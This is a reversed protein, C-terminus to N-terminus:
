EIVSVKLLDTALQIPLSKFCGDFRFLFLSQALKSHFDLRPNNGRLRANVRPAPANGGHHPCTAVGEKKGTPLMPAILNFDQVHPARFEATSM